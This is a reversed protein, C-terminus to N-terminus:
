TLTKELWAVIKIVPHLVSTIFPYNHYLLIKIQARSHLKMTAKFFGVLIDVM